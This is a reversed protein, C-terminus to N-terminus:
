CIELFDDPAARVVISDAFFYNYYSQDILLLRRTKPKSEAAALHLTELSQIEIHLKKPPHFINNCCFNLEEHFLIM